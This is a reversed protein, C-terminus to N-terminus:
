RIVITKKLRSRSEEMEKVVDERFMIEDLLKGEHSDYGKLLRLKFLTHM